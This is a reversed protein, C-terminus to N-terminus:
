LADAGGGHRRLYDARWRISRHSDAALRSVTTANLMLGPHHVLMADLTVRRVAASRDALGLAVLEAVACPRGVPRTEFVPSMRFSGCSKNIWRRERRVFWKVRGEILICVAERRMSPLKASRALDLLHGDLWPERLNPALLSAGTEQNALVGALRPALDPRHFADVLVDLLPDRTTWRRMRPLLHLAAAALTDDSTTALVRKACAHAAFRVPRVWDNLRMAIAALAFASRAPGDIRRLAAERVHGDRHFILLPAWRPALDLVMRHIQGREISLGAREAFTREAWAIASPPLADLAALVPEAAMAVMAPAGLPALAALAADLADSMMMTM